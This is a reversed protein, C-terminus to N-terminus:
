WPNSGEWCLWELSGALFYLPLSERSKDLLLGFPNFSAQLFHFIQLTLPFLFDAWEAAITVFMKARQCHSSKNMNQYVVENENSCFIFTESITNTLAVHFQGPNIGETSTDAKGNSMPRLSLNITHKTLIDRPFSSLTLFTRSISHKAVSSWLAISFSKDQINSESPDWPWWSWNSWLFVM